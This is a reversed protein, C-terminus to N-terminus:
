IIELRCLGFIATWRRTDSFEPACFHLQSRAISKQEEHSFSALEITTLVCIRIVRLDSHIYRATGSFNRCAIGMQSCVRRRPGKSWPSCFVRARENIQAASVPFIVAIQM